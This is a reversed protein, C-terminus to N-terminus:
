GINDSKARNCSECLLQINRKTNAGGKSFPIIHDFELYENSGCQVCKGGDRRWVADKVSEQIRRSRGKHEELNSAGQSSEIKKSLSSNKSSRLPHITRDFHDIKDWLTIENESEIRLKERYQQERKEKAKSRRYVGARETKCFKSRYSHHGGFRYESKEGCESCIIEENNNFSYQIKKDLRFDRIVSLPLLIGMFILGPFCICSLISLEIIDFLGWITNGFWRNLILFFWFIISVYFTLNIMFQSLPDFGIIEEIIDEREKKTNSRLIKTPMEVSFEMNSSFRVVLLRHINSM